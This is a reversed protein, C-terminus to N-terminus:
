SKHSRYWGNSLNNILCVVAPLVWLPFSSFNVPSFSHKHTTLCTSTDDVCSLQTFVCSIYKKKDSRRKEERRIKKKLQFKISHSESKTTTALARMRRGRGATIWARRRGLYSFTSIDLQTFLLSVHPRVSVYMFFNHDNTVRRTDMVINFTLRLPFEHLVEIHTATCLECASAQCCWVLASEINQTKKREYIDFIVLSSTSLHNSRTFLLISQLSNFHCKEQAEDFFVFLFKLGKLILNRLLCSTRM